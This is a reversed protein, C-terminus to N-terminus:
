EVAPFHCSQIIESVPMRLLEAGKSVSIEDESVARFVLQRFLTAEEQAIHMPEDTKWGWSSAKMYFIKEASKSIVGCISARKALLWMSIGYEECIAEMDKSIGKRHLGLERKVDDNPFLFAGSIATAKQEQEKDSMDSPWNFMLHALEHVVTSRMREAHMNNNIVIYPRGNVTGSLGSFHRDGKHLYILIGKNELLEILNAVPGEKSIRLYERLHLANEEDSQSLEVKNCELCPPLVKEGLINVICFFRSFYEEVSERVFDQQSKKLSCNRRFHGHQFNLDQGWEYLFDIISRNLANAIKNIIEVDPLNPSNECKTIVQPSLGARRALEKKSLGEKLRYFKLYKSFM